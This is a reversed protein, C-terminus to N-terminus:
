CIMWMVYFNETLTHPAEAGKAETEDNEKATTKLAYSSCAGLLVGGFFQACMEHDISEKSFHDDKWWSFRM